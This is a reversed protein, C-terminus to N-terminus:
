RVASSGNLVAQIEAARPDDHRQFIELASDWDRRAQEAEGLLSLTRGREDLARAQGLEYGIEGLVAHSRTAAEVSEALRDAERLARARLFLARGSWLASRAGDFIAVSELLGDAAEGARRAEMLVYGQHYLAFALGQRNGLDRLLTVSRGAVAVAEGMYGLEALKPAMTSLHQAEGLLDGTSRFLELAERDYVMAEEPSVLIMLTSLVFQYTRLDGAGKSLERAQHAEALAREGDSTQLVHAICARAMGEARADGMARAVPAVAEAARGYEALYYGSESLNYIAVLLDAAVGPLGAEALQRVTTHLLGAEVLLWDMAEAPDTFPLGDSETAGLAAIISEDDNIAVFANRASAVLFDALRDLPAEGRSRAFVKLLDHYRYRGPSPSELLSLDVLSECLDEADLLDMDLVAAAAPAPLDAADSGALLVFARAQAETLQDFGLSFSAEVGLDGVSLEALRRREDALREGMVAIPWGRRAALRSGAIRIALPLFGCAAVLDMAAGREAAVREEGAVRALLDLAERPDLVELDVARGLEALRARSTVLVACGPAGPLLPRVQAASEANDLLLLLRRGALTSRFLAAREHLEEPPKRM